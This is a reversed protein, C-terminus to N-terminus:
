PLFAQLVARYIRALAELEEISVSENVQHMTAGVLGFEAVPCYRTIFRADSTGGGTDLRPFRGTVQEVAARLRDTAPGPTTLFAEGSVAVDLDFREAHQALVTRLWAELAVGTHADNFRINLRARATAPILNTATNGVDLSTVQLSSPEFWTTGEDLPTATMASLARLLRHVPNDARAPYAVHGQVGHVAIAANLSGRRGIKIVEGLAAPNTPEGVLCFDPVHGNAAMWELVRVTGGTAPGEEDGTILLSISGRPLGDALHASVAAIFAAIAGKMDCAGRGFLAGDRLEGGFPDSSWGAAGPPVVDTHGAFCLHPGADGLRAFLNPTGDFVLRTVVFGLPTLADAVVDLAGADAPTVSPCRILARALAVADSV